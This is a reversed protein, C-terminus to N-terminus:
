ARAIQPKELRKGRTKPHSLLDSMRTLIRFFLSKWNTMKRKHSPLFFKRNWAPVDDQRQGSPRLGRGSPSAIRLCVWWARAIPALSDEKLGIKTATENVRDPLEQYWRDPDAEAATALERLGDFRSLGNLAISRLEKYLVNLREKAKELEDRTELTYTQAIADMEQIADRAPAYADKVLDPLLIEPLNRTIHHKLQAEFRGIRAGRKAEAIFWARDDSTWDENSRPLQRMRSKPFLKAYRDELEDLYNLRQSADETSEALLAFLAPETSLPIPEIANAEETYEELAESIAERIRRTVKLTFNREAAQPNDDGLFVDIRNLIFLMRAPSGGLAKVRDVIQRTLDDQKKSDPEASNYTVLCLGKSAKKIVDSNLEDGVYKLGPLDVIM